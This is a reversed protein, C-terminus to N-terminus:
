YTYLVDFTEALFLEKYDSENNIIAVKKVGPKRKYIILNKFLQVKTDVYNEMTKHLDLHDQTINTLVAIDYNLGYNRNMLISHSSTEIVAVTCGKEKAEKLLRQLMFVDPSTMKTNNVM